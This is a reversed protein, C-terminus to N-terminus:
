CFLRSTISCRLAWNACGATPMGIYNQIDANRPDRLAALKFATITGSWDWIQWAPVSRGIKWHFNRKRRQTLYESGRKLPAGGRSNLPLPYVAAAILAGLLAAMMVSRTM